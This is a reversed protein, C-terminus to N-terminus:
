VRDAALRRQLGWLVELLSRLALRHASYRAEGETPKVPGEFYTVALDVVARYGGDASRVRTEFEAHGTAVVACAQVALELSEAPSGNRQALTARAFLAGMADIRADGVLGEVPPADSLGDSDSPAGFGDDSDDDSWRIRSRPVRMRSSSDGSQVDVHVVETLVDAGSVCQQEEGGRALGEDSAGEPLVDVSVCQEVVGSAALGEDSAQHLPVDPVSM